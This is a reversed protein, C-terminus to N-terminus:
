FLEEAREEVGSLVGLPSGGEGPGGVPPLSPTEGGGGSPPAAPDENMEPGVTPGYGNTPLSPPPPSGPLLPQGEEAGTGAEKSGKHSSAASSGSSGASSGSHTATVIEHADAVTLSVRANGSEFREITAQPRGSSRELVTAQSPTSPIVAVMGIAACAICSLGGNLAVRGGVLWEGVDTIRALRLAIAAPTREVILKLKRRARMRQMKEAAPTACGGTAGVEVLVAQRAQPSFGNLAARVKGLEVRALGAEEVSHQYAVEPIESAIEQFKRRAQDRLHNMAIARTLPWAPRSRDVDEWAGYLRAATEQVVDDRATVPLGRRALMRHLRQALEPWESEFDRRREPTM